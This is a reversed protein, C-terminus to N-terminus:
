RSFLTFTTGAEGGWGLTMTPLLCEAGFLSKIPSHLQGRQTGTDWIWSPGVRPPLCPGGVHRHRQANDMCPAARGELRGAGTDPASDSGWCSGPAGTDVGGWALGSRAKGPKPVPCLPVTEPFSEEVSYHSLQGAQGSFSKPIQSDLELASNNQIPRGAWWSM